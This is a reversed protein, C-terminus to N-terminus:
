KDPSNAASGNNWISACWENKNLSHCGAQRGDGRDNAHKDIDGETANHGATVDYLLCSITSHGNRTEDYTNNVSLDPGLGAYFDLVEASDLARSLRYSHMQYGAFHGYQGLFTAAPKGNCNSSKYVTFELDYFPTGPDFGLDDPVERPLLSHTPNPLALATVSIFATFLILAM